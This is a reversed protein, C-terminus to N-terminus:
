GIYRGKNDRPVKPLIVPVNNVVVDNEADEVAHRLTPFHGESMTDGTNRTWWFCRPSTSYFRYGRAILQAPVDHHQWTSM